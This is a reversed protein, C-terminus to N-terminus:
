KNEYSLLNDITVSKLNLQNLNSLLQELVKVTHESTDHLLIISGKRIRPMIRELIQNENKIVTDLSRVDWGVMLHKTVALAKAIHPNTVGFPPRFLVNDINTFDKILRDTRIIDEKVQEKTWFGFSNSHWYTHNAVQHGKSIIQRFIDPHKEIQKGICFFTAKAQYQELVELIQPTFVTPGDDFTISLVGSSTEIRCVAKLFYNLRINWVGINIILVYILLLIPLIRLSWDFFVILVISLFICIVFVITVKQHM